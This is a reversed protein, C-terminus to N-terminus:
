KGGVIYQHMYGVKIGNKTAIITKHHKAYWKSTCKRNIESQKFSNFIM